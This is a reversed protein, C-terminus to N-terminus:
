IRNAYESLHLSYLYECMTMTHASDGILAVRGKGHIGSPPHWDELSLPVIGVDDPLGHVLGRFPEAWGESFRKMLAVQEGKTGPIDIPDKMGFFGPKHPWSLIVQCSYKDTSDSFNHPSDLFSFFLYTNDKSSTGQFIYPDIGRAAAAQIASYQTTAGLLRVPIPNM